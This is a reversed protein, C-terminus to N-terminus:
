RRSNVCCHRGPSPFCKKEFLKIRNTPCKYTNVFCWHMTKLGCLWLPLDNTYKQGTCPVYIESETYMTCGMHRPYLMISAGLSSSSCASHDTAINSQLLTHKGASCCAATSAAETMVTFLQRRLLFICWKAILNLYLDNHLCSM